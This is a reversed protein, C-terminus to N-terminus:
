GPYSETQESRPIVKVKHTYTTAKGIKFKGRDFVKQLLTNVKSYRNESHGIARVNLITGAPAQHAESNQSPHHYVQERALFGPAPLYQEYALQVPLPQYSDLHELSSVPPYPLGAMDGNFVPPALVSAALPTTSTAGTGTTPTTPTTSSTAGILSGELVYAVGSSVRVGNSITSNNLGSAPAGFFLDPIADSDVTTGLTNADIIPNRASVSTGIGGGGNNIAPDSTGSVNFVNGNLTTSINSLMQPLALITAGQATGPVLYAEGGVITAGPAGILIDYLPQATTTTGFQLHTTTALSYGTEDGLAQGIFSTATLGTTAATPTITFVGNIRAPTTTTTGTLGYAVYAYGTAANYGPAGLLVDDVGDSNFDGASAVAYGLDDGSNQASFVIGQLPNTVPNTTAAIGLSALSQTTGLTSNPLYTQNAYVLYAQGGFAAGPAGILLDDIPSGSGVQGDFNGATAVSFGTLAGASTGTYEIGASTNATTGVTSLDVNTGTALSNLYTGSIAFVAGAQANGSVALGPVGIAVDRGNTTNFYNGIGAVSYGVDTGTAAGPMSLTVVKTPTTTPNTGATPELDLTKSTVAQTALATGGYIIFVKGGGADNPASIAFDDFGDKNLDGLPTVSYGLASNRGLGTATDLGTVLTLGDFNFGYVHTTTQAPVPQFVTPNTQATAPTNTTTAVGLTGLEGLDGGRQGGTLEASTTSTTGGTLTLWDVANNINVQKSGFVLYAAGQGATSLTPLGGIGAAPLGTASVVFSDYGSGTVNGVDTVTYGAFNNAAKGTFVVGLPTNTSTGPTASLDITALLRRHELAESSPLFAGHRRKWSSGPRRKGWHM